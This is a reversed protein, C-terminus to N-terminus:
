TRCTSPPITMAHVPDCAHQHCVPTLNGDADDPGTM